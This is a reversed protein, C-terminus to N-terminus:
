TLATLEGPYDPSDLNQVTDGSRLIKTQLRWIKLRIEWDESKRRYDGPYNGFNLFGLILDTIHLTTGAVKKYVGEVSAKFKAKIARGQLCASKQQQSLSTMNEMNSSTPPQCGQESSKMHLHLSTLM